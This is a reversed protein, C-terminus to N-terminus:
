CQWRLLLISVKMDVIVLRTTYPNSMSYNELTAKSRIDFEVRKDEIVGQFGWLRSFLIDHLRFCRRQSISMQRQLSASHRGFITPTEWSFPVNGQHSTSDKHRERRETEEFVRFVHFSSGATKRICSETSIHDRPENTSEKGSTLRYKRYVQLILTVSVCIWWSFPLSTKGRREPRQPSLFVLFVCLSWTEGVCHVKRRFSPFRRQSVNLM